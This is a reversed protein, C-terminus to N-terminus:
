YVTIILLHSVPTIIRNTDMVVSSQRSVLVFFCVHSIFVFSFTWSFLFSLAVLVSQSHCYAINSSLCCKKNNDIKIVTTCSLIKTSVTNTKKLIREHISREFSSFLLRLKKRLFFVSGLSKFL